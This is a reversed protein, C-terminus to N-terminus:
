AGGTLQSVYKGITFAVASAAVGILLMEMGARFFSRRTFAARGAGVAFLVGGALVAAVVFPRDHGPIIYALLPVVGAGVFGLFTALGKPLAEHWSTRGEPRSRESLIDSAAMSIGDAFLSAFGLILITGSSLGAGVIGAVIAFTTVVGDNAGYIIEPLHARVIRKWAREGEAGTGGPTSGNDSM